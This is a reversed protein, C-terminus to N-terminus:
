DHDSASSVDALRMALSTMAQQSHQQCRDDVMSGERAGDAEYARKM